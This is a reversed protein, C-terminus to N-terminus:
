PRISSRLLKSRQRREPRRRAPVLAMLDAKRDGPCLAKIAASLHQTLWGPAIDEDDNADSSPAPGLKAGSLDTAARSQRLRGDGCCVM